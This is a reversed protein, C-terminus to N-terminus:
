LECNRLTDRHARFQDILESRFLRIYPDRNLYNITGNVSAIMEEVKVELPKIRDYIAVQEESSLANFESPTINFDAFTNTSFSEPSLPDNLAVSADVIASRCDKAFAQTLTLTFISLLVLKM